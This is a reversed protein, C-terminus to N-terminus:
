QASAKAALMDKVLSAVIRKVDEFTVYCTVGKQAFEGLFPIAKLKRATEPTVTRATFRFGKDDFDFAGSVDGSSVAFLDDGAAPFREKLARRALPESSAFACWELDSSFVAYTPLTRGEDAPLLVTDASVKEAGAHNLAMKAVKDVTPYVMVVDVSGRGDPYGVWRVPDAARMKGYMSVIRNQAFSVLMMPLMANGVANGIHQQRSQFSDFSKLEVMWPSAAFLMSSVACVVLMVCQRM